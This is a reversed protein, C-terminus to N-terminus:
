HHHYLYYQCEYDCCQECYNHVNIAILSAVSMAAIMAVAKALISAVIITHARAGIITSMSAVSLAAFCILVELM